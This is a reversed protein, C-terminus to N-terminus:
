NEKSCMWYELASNCYDLNKKSSSNTKESHFMAFDLMDQKTFLNKNEERIQRFCPPTSHPAFCGGRCEMKINHDCMECIEM